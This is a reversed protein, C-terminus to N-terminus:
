KEYLSKTLFTIECKEKYINIQNSILKNLYQSSSQYTFILSEDAYDIKPYSSYGDFGVLGISTVGLKIM